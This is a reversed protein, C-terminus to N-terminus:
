GSSDNNIDRKQNLGLVKREGSFSSVANYMVHVHDFIKGIRMGM